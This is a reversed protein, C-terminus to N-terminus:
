RILRSEVCDTGTCVMVSTTDVKNGSPDFVEDQTSAQRSSLTEPETYTVERDILSADEDIVEQPQASPKKGCLSSLNLTRGNLTQMYCVPKDTDSRTVVPFKSGVTLPHTLATETIFLISAAWFVTTLHFSKLM